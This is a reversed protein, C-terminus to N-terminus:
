SVSKEPFDATDLTNAGCKHAPSMWYLKGFINTLIENSFFDRYDKNSKQTNCQECLPIANHFALGTKTYMIFTGGKSRPVMFHDLHIGNKQSKCNACSNEFLQLLTLFYKKRFDRDLAAEQDNPQSSIQLLGLKTPDVAMTGTPLGLTKAVSLFMEDEQRRIKM